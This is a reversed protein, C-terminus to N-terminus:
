RGAAGRYDVLHQKTAMFPFKSREGRNICAPRVQPLEELITGKLQCPKGNITENRTNNWDGRQSADYVSNPGTQRALKEVNNRELIQASAFRVYVLHFLHLKPFLTTNSRLLKRLIYM